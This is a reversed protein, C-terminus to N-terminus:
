VITCAESGGSTFQLRGVSAALVQQSSPQSEKGWKGQKTAEAAAEFELRERARAAESM